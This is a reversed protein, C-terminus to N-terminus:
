RSGPAVEDMAQLAAEVEALRQAHVSRTMQSGLAHARAQDSWEHGASTAASEGLVPPWAKVSSHMPPHGVHLISQAHGHAMPLPM